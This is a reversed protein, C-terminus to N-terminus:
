FYVRVVVVALLILKVKKRVDNKRSFYLAERFNLIAHIM